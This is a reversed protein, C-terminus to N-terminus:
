GLQGGSREWSCIQDRDGVKFGEMARLKGALHSLRADEAEAFVVGWEVNQAGAM